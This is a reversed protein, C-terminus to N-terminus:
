YLSLFRALVGKVIWDQSLNQIQLNRTAIHAFRFNVHFHECFLLDLGPHGASIGPYAWYCDAALFELGSLEAPGSNRLGSKEKALSHATGYSWHHITTHLAWRFNWGSAAQQAASGVFVQIRLFLEIYIWKTHKHGHLGCNELLYWAPMGIKHHQPIHALKAHDILHM